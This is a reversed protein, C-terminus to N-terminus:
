SDGDAKKGTSKFYKAAIFPLSLYAVIIAFSWADGLYPRGYVSMLAVPVMYIPALFRKNVSM